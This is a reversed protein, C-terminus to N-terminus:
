LVYKALIIACLIDHATQDVHRRAEGASIGRLDTELNGRSGFRRSGYHAGARSAASVYVWSDAMFNRVDRSGPVDAPNHYYACGGAVRRACDKRLRCEKVREPCREGGQGGSPYVQGLNGHFVVAGVRVAFHDWQPIFHLEPTSVADLIDRPSTLGKPIIAADLSIHPALAIAGRAPALAVVQVAPQAPASSHTRAAPHRPPPQAKPTPRPKTNARQPKAPEAQSAAPPDRGFIRATLAHDKWPVGRVDAVTSSGKRGPGPEPAAPPGPPQRLTEASALYNQMAQVEERHLAEAATGYRGVVTVLNRLESHLRRLTAIRRARAEFQTFDVIHSERASSGRRTAEVDERLTLAARHLSCLLTDVEHSLAVSSLAAARAAQATRTPKSQEM